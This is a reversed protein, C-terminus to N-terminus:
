LPIEFLLDLLQFDFIHLVFLTYYGCSVLLSPDRMIQYLLSSTLSLAFSYPGKSGVVIVRSSILTYSVTFEEPCDILNGLLLTGM